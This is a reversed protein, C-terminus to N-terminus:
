LYGSNDTFLLVDHLPLQTSIDAAVALGSQISSSSQKSTGSTDKM